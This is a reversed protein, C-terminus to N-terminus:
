GVPPPSDTEVARVLTDMIWTLARAAEDGPLQWDRVLREHSPADWLVDLLAAIAIRETDSWQPAAETAARLLADRRRQDVAVFTPDDSGRVATDVAFRQRSTLVRNTVETLNALTTVQEYNVGAEEELRHMIADHLHRETPFHRYVTREGVGARDAVARFTLAKWDWSALEHAIASGALVIRERTQAAQLQRVPADYQRRQDTSATASSSRAKAMM